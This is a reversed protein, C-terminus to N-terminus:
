ARTPFPKTAVSSASTLMPDWRRCLLAEFSSVLGCAVVSLISHMNLHRLTRVQLAHSAELALRHEQEGRRRAARRKAKGANNPMNSSHVPASGQSAILSVCPSKLPDTRLNWALESLAGALYEVLEAPIGALEGLHPVTCSVTLAEPASSVFM